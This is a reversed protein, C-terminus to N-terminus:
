VTGNPFPRAGLPSRESRRKRGSTHQHRRRLPRLLAALYKRCCFGNNCRDNPNFFWRQRSHRLRELAFTNLNVQGSYRVRDNRFSFFLLKLKQRIRRNAVPKAGRNQACRTQQPPQSLERIQRTKTSMSSDCCGQSLQSLETSQPWISRSGARKRAKTGFMQAAETWM